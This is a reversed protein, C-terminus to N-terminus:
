LEWLFHGDVNGEERVWGASEGTVRRLGRFGRVCYNEGGDEQFQAGAEINRVGFPCACRWGLSYIVLWDHGAVLLINGPFDEDCFSLPSAPSTAPWQCLALSTQGSALSKLLTVKLIGLYFAVESSLPHLVPPLASGMAM